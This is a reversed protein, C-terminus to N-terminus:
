RARPERRRRRVWSLGFGLLALTGAGEVLLTTTVFPARITETFGFLGVTLSLLLAGLTGLELLGGLLAAYGLLRGPVLLLLVAALAALVANALFSPGIVHITRYGNLYLHLHIWGTELLLGAGVVRVAASTVSLRPAAQATTVM